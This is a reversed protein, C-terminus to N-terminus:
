HTLGWVYAYKGVRQARPTRVKRMAPNANYYEKFAVAFADNIGGLIFIPMAKKNRHLYLEWHTVGNFEHAQATFFERSGDIRWRDNHYITDAFQYRRSRSM